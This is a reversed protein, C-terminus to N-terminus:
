ESGDTPAVTEAANREREQAQREKMEAQWEASKALMSAPFFVPDGSTLETRIEYLVEVEELDHEALVQDLERDLEIAEEFTETGRVLLEAPGGSVLQVLDSDKGGGAFAVRFEYGRGSFQSELAKTLNDSRSTAVVIADRESRSITQGTPHKGRCGSLAIGASTAAIFSLLRRPALFRDHRKM